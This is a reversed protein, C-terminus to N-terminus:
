SDPAKPDTSLGMQARAIIRDTFRLGAQRELEGAQVDRRRLMLMMETVPDIPTGGETKLTRVGERFLTERPIGGLEELYVGALQMMCDNFDGARFLQSPDLLRDCHRSARNCREEYGCEPSEDDLRRCFPKIRRQLDDRIRQIHELFIELDDYANSAM